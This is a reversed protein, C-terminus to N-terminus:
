TTPNKSPYTSNYSEKLSQNGWTCVAWLQVRDVSAYPGLSCVAWLHVRDWTACPGLNCVAWLHVCGWTACPGFISVARLQVRDWTACSLSQFAAKPASTDVPLQSISPSWLPTSPYLHLYFFLPYSFSLSFSLCISLISFFSLYFFSLHISFPVSPYFFSLVSFSLFFFSPYFFSLLTFSPPPLLGLIVPNFSLLTSGM